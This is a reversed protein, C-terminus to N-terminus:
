SLGLHDEKEEKPTSANIKFRMNQNILAIDNFKPGKKEILPFGKTSLSPVRSLVYIM